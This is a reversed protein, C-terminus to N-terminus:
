VFNRKLKLLFHMWAFMLGSIFVHFPEKEEDIACARECLDDHIKRQQSNLDGVLKGHEDAKLVDVFQKFSALGKSGENKWKDFEKQFDDLDKSATTELFETEADEEELIDERNQELESIIDAMSKGQFKFEFKAQNELITTLNKEYLDEIDKEHIDQMENRFPLFLILKGRKMDIDNEYKLYYRLIARKGRMKIRGKGDLFDFENPKLEETNKKSGYLIDFCSVFDAFCM